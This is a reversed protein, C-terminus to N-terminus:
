SGGAAPAAAASAASARTMEVILEKISKRDTAPRPFPLRAKFRDEGRECSVNMGLRDVLLITAKDM